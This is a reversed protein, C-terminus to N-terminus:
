PNGATGHGRAPRKLSRPREAVVRRMSVSSTFSPRVKSSTSNTGASLATSGWSTCIAERTVRCRTSGVGMREEAISVTVSARRAMARAWSPPSPTMWLFKVGSSCAAWTARTFFCSLPMTSSGMVRWTPAGRDRATSNIIWCLMEPMGMRSPRLSTPSMVVRSTRKSFFRECGTCCTIVVRSTVAGSPTVWSRAMSSSWWWRM